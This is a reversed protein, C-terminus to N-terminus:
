ATKAYASGHLRNRNNHIQWGSGPLRVRNNLRGELRGIRGLIGAIPMTKELITRAKNVDGEALAQCLSRADIHLPCAARCCAWEEQICLHEPERLESQEMAFDWIAM